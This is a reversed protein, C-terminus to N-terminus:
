QACLGVLDDERAAARLGILESKKPKRSPMRRGSLMQDAIAGFM